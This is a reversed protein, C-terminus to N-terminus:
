AMGLPGFLGRLTEECQLCSNQFEPLERSIGQADGTKHGQQLREIRNNITNATQSIKLFRRLLDSPILGCVDALLVKFASTDFRYPTEALPVSPFRPDGHQILTAVEKYQALELRLLAVKKIRDETNMMQERVEYHTMPVATGGEGRRYYIGDVMHPRRQSQPIYVIFVGRNSDNRLILVHPMAEFYIEPQVIEIKQGFERRLDGGVPIGAIRDELNAVRQRRDRVGFLIFGGNTNAMSCVTRRISALHDIRGTGTANLADKYDFNGPEFEYKRVLNVITDFTWDELHLPLDKFEELDM